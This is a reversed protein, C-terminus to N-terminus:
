IEVRQFLKEVDVKTINDSALMMAHFSVTAFILDGVTYQIWCTSRYNNVIYM